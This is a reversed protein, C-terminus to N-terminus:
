LTLINGTRPDSSGSQVEQWVRQLSEPGDGIVVDVWGDVASAFAQWAEALRAEFGDKGWDAVRKVMQDPAFFAVSGTQEVKGVRAPKQGTLGIVVQRVLSDGLHGRLAASLEGNGLFDAYLTPAQELEDISDYTLVADYCGLKRTFELNRASTLGIVPRGLRQLEFATGYATKSSASSFLATGAGFYDNDVLWDALVYSTWFLPRYLALLDERDADYATDGTTLAYANYPSPLTLRHASSDRFGQAGIRDPRVTLHSASPFYGYVRDGVSVGDARSEVVDAFGWLPVIGRGSSAPFFEWYRFPDVAGLVAYTVNNATIGVRDVRLRAEGVRLDALPAEVLFTQSIDSKDIEVTWSTATNTADTM